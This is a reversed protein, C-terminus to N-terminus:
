PRVVNIQDELVELTVPANGIVEGDVEVSEGDASGCPIVTVKRCRATVLERVSLFSGTFLKYAQSAIRM